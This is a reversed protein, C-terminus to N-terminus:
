QGYVDMTHGLQTSEPQTQSYVTVLNENTDTTTPAEARVPRPPLNM